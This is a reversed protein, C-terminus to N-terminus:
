TKIIYNLALFPPMSDDHNTSGKLPVATTSAVGSTVGASTVRENSTYASVGATQIVADAFSNGAADHFFVQAYGDAGLVHAHTEEGGKAALARATLTLTLTHTGTGQTTIDVVVPTDYLANLQSTALKIHTSDVPVVYYTNGATLGAPAGGSTTLVVALGKKLVATDAASVTLQDTATTVSAAAIAVAYTGTGVGVPLRGRMDPVNFHTGDVTGFTTSIATFLDPYTARLLSSGDCLLWGDPAAAGAYPSVMGAPTFTRLAEAVLDAWGTTQKIIAVEDTTNGADAYGAEFSDIIIDGSSLHGKFQTMSAPDLLGSPLLEGTTCIFETPWNDVSDVELTTGAISRALTVHALAAEGTGDSAKLYKYNSM